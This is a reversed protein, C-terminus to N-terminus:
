TSNYIKAISFQRCYSKNKVDHRVQDAMKRDHHNAIPFGRPEDRVPITENVTKALTHLSLRSRVQIQRDNILPTAKCCCYLHLKKRMALFTMRAIRANDDERRDESSPSLRPDM